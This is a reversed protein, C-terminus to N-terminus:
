NKLKITYQVTCLKSEGDENISGGAIYCSIPLKLYRAIEGDSEEITWAEDDSTDIQCDKTLDVGNITLKAEGAIMSTKEKNDVLSWTADTVVVETIQVNSETYSTIKYADESPTVVTGDGGYAYMCVYLPVTVNLTIIKEQIIVSQGSVVVSLNQYHEGEKDLYGNSDKLAWQSKDPDFGDNYTAIVHSDAYMSAAFDVPIANDIYLDSKVQIVAYEDETGGLYIYQDADIQIEGSLILEGNYDYIGAAINDSNGTISGGSIDVTSGAYMCIAGGSASTSANNNNQLITEDEINLTGGNNVTIMAAAASVELATTKPIGSSLKNAHGDITIEELSLEGGNEVSILTGTFSSVSYGEVESYATPQSYRMIRVTGDITYNCEMDVYENSTIYVTEESGISVTGLIYITGGGQDELISYAKALTKVATEPTIGQNEDDGNEGDVYVGVKAALYVYGVKTSVAYNDSVSDALVYMGTESSEPKSSITSYHAIERGDAADSLRINLVSASTASGTSVTLYVDTGLWVTNDISVVGDISVTGNDYLSCADENNINNNNFLGAGGKLSLSAGSNVTVLPSEAEVASAITQGKNESATTVAASHGNLSVGDLTLSAGSELIFLEKTHSETEFMQSYGNLDVNDADPQSYRKITVGGSLCVEQTESGNTYSYSVGKTETNSNSLIITEGDSVTYTDVLYILGGNVVDDDAGESDDSDTEIQSLYYYAEYLSTFPYDASLGQKINSDNAYKEAISSIEDALTQNVYVVTGQRLLLSFGDEAGSPLTDEEETLLYSTTIAASLEFKDQQAEADDFDGSEYYVYIRGDTPDSIDMSVAQVDANISTDAATIYAGETLYVLGNTDLAADKSIVLTGAQYIASANQVASTDTIELTKGELINLTGKNYIGGGNLGSSNTISIDANVNVTGGNYIAGGEATKSVNGDIVLESSFTLVAGENIYFISGSPSVKTDEDTHRGYIGTINESNITLTAGKSLIFMNGKCASYSNKGGVSFGTYRKIEIEVDSSWVNNGTLTVSGSVYIVAKGADAAKEIAAAMTKLASGPTAGSNNDSGSGSIFVCCKIVIDSGSKAFVNGEQVAATYQTYQSASTLTTENPTVVVDGYSFSQMNVAIKYTTGSRMSGTLILPNDKDSLYIADSISVKSGAMNLETSGNYIGASLGSEYYAASASEEDEDDQSAESDTTDATSKNGSIKGGTLTVTATGVSSGKTPNLHVTKGNSWIGGGYEATNGSVTGGSMTLTAKASCDEGLSGTKNSYGYNYIGGGEEATNGSITGGNVTLNATSVIGGGSGDGGLYTHYVYAYNCVAGGYAASNGSITGGSIIVEGASTSTYGYYSNGTRVCCSYNYIGGGYSSAENGSIEGGSISVKGAATMQSQGQAYSYSYIGGGNEATNNTIKGGSM